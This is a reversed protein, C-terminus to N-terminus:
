SPNKSYTVSAVSINQKRKIMKKQGFIHERREKINEKHINHSSSKYAVIYLHVSLNKIKPSQHDILEYVYQHTLIWM